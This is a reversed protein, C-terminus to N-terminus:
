SDGAALPAQREASVESMTLSEAHARYRCVIRELHVSPPRLRTLRFLYDRDAIIRLDTRFAGVRELLERRFFCANLHSIRLCEPTAALHEGRYHRDVYLTERGGDQERFVEADGCVVEAQPNARVAEAFAHFIGPAYLDDCNIWGIWSGTARALAKNLADYLGEDPESFWELGYSGAYEALTALTADTSGGDAVIHELAPYDQAIISDLTASLYNGQNFSPSVISLKPLDVKSM